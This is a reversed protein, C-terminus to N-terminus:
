SSSSARRSKVTIETSACLVDWGAREKTSSHFALRSPATVVARAVALAFPSILGRFLVWTAWLAASVIASM